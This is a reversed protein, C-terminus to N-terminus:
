LGRLKWLRESSWNMTAMECGDITTVIKVCHCVPGGERRERFGNEMVGEVGSRWEGSAGSGALKGVLVSGVWGVGVAHREPVLLGVEAEIPGGLGLRAVAHRGFVLVLVPALPEEVDM